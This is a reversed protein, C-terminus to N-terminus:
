TITVGKEDWLDVKCLKLKDKTSVFLKVENMIGRVRTLDRANIEVCQILDTGNYGDKYSSSCLGDPHLFSVIAGFRKFCLKKCVVIDGVEFVDKPLISSNIDVHKCHKSHITNRKYEMSRNYMHKLRKNLNIIEFKTSTGSGVIGVVEGFGKINNQLPSKYKIYSGVEIPRDHFIKLRHWM